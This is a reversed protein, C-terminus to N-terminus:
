LTLFAVSFPYKKLVGKANLLKPDSIKKLCASEGQPDHCPWVWKKPRFNINSLFNFFTYIKKLIGKADLLKLVIPFKLFKESLNPSGSLRPPAVDM